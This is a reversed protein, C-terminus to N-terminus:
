DFFFVNFQVPNRIGTGLESFHGSGHVYTENMYM